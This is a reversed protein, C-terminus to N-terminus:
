FALEAHDTHCGTCGFSANVSTAFKKGDVHLSVTKGARTTTMSKDGHCALCEEGPQEAKKQAGLVSDQSILFVFAIALLPVVIMGLQTRGKNEPVVKTEAM